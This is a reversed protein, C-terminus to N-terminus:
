AGIAFLERGATELLEKMQDETLPASLDIEPKM